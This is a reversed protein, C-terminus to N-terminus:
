QNLKRRKLVALVAFGVAGLGALLIYPLNNIVVGTIVTTNDENTYAVENQGENIVKQDTTLDQGKNGETKTQGNLTFSPTYDSDGVETVTYKTGVPLNNFTLDEGHKLTFTYTKDAELSTVPTTSNEETVKNAAVTAISGGASELANKAFQIKFTFPKQHNGLDGTVNKSIKLQSKAVYTNNFNIADAKGEDSNKQAKIQKIYLGNNDKNAVDVYVTYQHGDYSMNETASTPKTEKVTYVYQGAHPFTGFNINTSKKLVYKGNQPNNLSQGNFTIGNISAAPADPTTSTATFNFTEGPITTSGEPLELTKTVEISDDTTTSTSNAAFAPTVSLVMLGSLLGLGLAKKM